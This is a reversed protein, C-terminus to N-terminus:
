AAKRWGPLVRMLWSPAGSRRAPQEAVESPLSFRVAFGADDVRLTADLGYADAIDAVLADFQAQEDPRLQGVVTTATVEGPHLFMAAAVRLQSECELGLCGEAQVSTAASRQATATANM